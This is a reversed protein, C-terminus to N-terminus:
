LKILGGPATLMVSDMLSSGTQHFDQIRLCVKKFPTVKGTQIDVVALDKAPDSLWTTTKEYPKDTYVLAFRSNRDSNLLSSEWM